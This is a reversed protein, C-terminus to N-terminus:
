FSLRFCTSHINCLRDKCMYMIYLFCHFPDYLLYKFIQKLNRLNAVASIAMIYSIVLHAQKTKKMYTKLDGNVAFPFVALPIDEQIVIGRLALLNGHAIDKVILAEKFFEELDVDTVPMFLSPVFATFKSFRM